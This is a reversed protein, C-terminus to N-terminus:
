ACEETRDVSGLLALIPRGDTSRSPVHLLRRFTPLFDAPSVTENLIGHTIGPGSAWFQGDVTHDGTRADAFEQFLTGIKPSTVSRIPRERNWIVILDPLANVFEGRYADRTKIVRTVLPQGSESNVIDLLDREVQELLADYETPDVLGQSERGRLNLRVGGAGNNAYVEFSRRRHRDPLFQPHSLAGKFPKRFPEVRERMDAPISRWIERARGKLSPGENSPRNNELRDLIRDLLGTGTYQPGMGHSAYFLVITDRGAERVLAGIASDLARFADRLPAGLAKEYDARYRPHERDNIHWLHHGLCHLDSFVVEFYDWTEEALFHKALKAKKEIRDLHIDRFRRYDDITECLNDDCLVGHAPEVGVLELVTDRVSEPCTALELRGSGRAPVHSSWDVICVGNISADLHSYPPDLVFCRKGAQSLEQWIMLPAEHTSYHGFTYREPDFRRLGDFLPQGGPELGTHFTPWASGAELGDPNKVRGRRSRRALASLNPLDGAECWKEILGPDAADGGIILLKASM